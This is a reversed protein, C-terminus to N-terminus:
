ASRAIAEAATASDGSASKAPRLPRVNVPAQVNHRGAPRSTFAALARAAINAVREADPICRLTPEARKMRIPRAHPWLVAYSIREDSTLEFSVNGTGDAAIKASAAAVKSFPINLTVPLAVGIRMVLREDTLTYVTTRATAWALLALIGCGTAALASMWLVGIAAEAFPQGDYLATTVQWAIMLAFYFAILRIHFVGKAIARWDPAGRWLVKEGPPLPEPLGPVPEFAFDDHSV